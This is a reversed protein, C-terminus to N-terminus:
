RRFLLEIEAMQLYHGGYNDVGLQQPVILAGWTGRPKPLSITVPSFYYPQTTYRGIWDWASNTPTTLYIDYVQPFGLGYMQPYSYVNRPTLRISNVLAPGYNSEPFSPRWAALYLGTTNSATPHWFSSYDTNANRDLVYSAPWGPLQENSEATKLLYSTEIPPQPNPARSTIIGIALSFDSCQATLCNQGSCAPAPNGSYYIRPLDGRSPDGPHLHGVGVSTAYFQGATVGILPIGEQFNDDNVRATM